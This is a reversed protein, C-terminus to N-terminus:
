FRGPVYPLYFPKSAIKTTIIKLDNTNTCVSHHNHLTYNAPILISETPSSTEYLEMDPWDWVLETITQQQKILKADYILKCWIHTGGSLGKNDYSWSHAAESIPRFATVHRQANDYTWRKVTVHTSM